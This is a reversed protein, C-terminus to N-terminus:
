SRLSTTARRAGRSARPARIARGVRQDHEAVEIDRGFVAVDPVRLREDARRMDGFRFAGRHPRQAVPAHFVHEAADVRVGIPQVGVPVIARAVEVLVAAHADVERERRLGDGLADVQATTSRLARFPM